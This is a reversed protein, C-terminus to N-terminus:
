KGGQSQSASFELAEKWIVAVNLIIWPYCQTTTEHWPISRLLDYCFVQVPEMRNTNKCLLTILRAYRSHVDYMLVRIYKM